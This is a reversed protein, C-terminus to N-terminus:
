NRRLAEQVAFSNNIIDLVRQGPVVKNSVYDLNGDRGIVAIGFGSNMGYEQAVRAGNSIIIYPADAPVRGSSQTFAIFALVRAAGLFQYVGRIEHLQKRFARDKVDPTVILVVSRGKVANLSSTEGQLNKWFFNPAPRVVNASLAIPFLLVFLATKLLTNM